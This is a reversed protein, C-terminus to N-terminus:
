QSNKEYVKLASGRLLYEGVYIAEDVSFYGDEVLDSLAAAMAKRAIQLHGYTNEPISYDGGFGTIKTVPVATLAKKLFNCSAATDVIWSWSMDAYFNSIQRISMVLENQYPYAIHMAIFKCEPHSIAINSIDRVNNRIADFNVYNAGSYIGTHFKLPLKYDKAKDLIYFFLYDVLPRIETYNKIQNHLYQNFYKEAAKFSVSPNFDLSGLYGLAIKISCCHKAYKEFYVDIAKQWGNLTSCDVCTENEILYVSSPYIFIDAYLDPKMIEVDGWFRVPYRNDNKDSDFCNIMSYDIGAKERLIKRYFGPQVMKEIRYTLEEMSDIDISSIGYIDKIAIIPAKIYASNKSLYSYKSFIEWKRKHDSDQSYLEESERDSMGAMKLATVGYHYFLSTWDGKNKLRWSEDWLHEHTNIVKVELLKNYISNLYHQSM